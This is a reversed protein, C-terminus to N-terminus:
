RIRRTGMSDLHAVFGEPVKVHCLDYHCRRTRRGTSDAPALRELPLRVRGGRPPVGPPTVRLLCSFGAGYGVCGGAAGGAVFSDGRRRAPIAKAFVDAYIVTGVGGALSFMGFLVLFVGLVLGPRTMGLQWTLFALLGFSEWRLTIVGLLIPKRRQRGEILYATFLQPIVQGAGQVAAM